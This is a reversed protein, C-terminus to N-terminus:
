AGHGAARGLDDVAGRALRVLDDGGDGGDHGRVADSEQEALRHLPLIPPSVLQDVPRDAAFMGTVLLAIAVGLLIQQIMSEATSLTQSPTTLGTVVIITVFAGGQLGTYSLHGSFYIYFFIAMGTVLILLFLFPTERLYMVLALGFIVGLVRGLIRELGKQFITTSPNTMIIHVSIVSMYTLGLHLVETAVLCLTSAGAVLLARFVNAAQNDAEDVM